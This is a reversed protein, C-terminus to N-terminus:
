NLTNRGVNLRKIVRSVAIIATEKCTTQAVRRARTGGGKKSPCDAKKHGIKGCGYCKAAFAGVEGLATEHGNKDDESKKKSKKEGEAKVKEIRFQKHMETIYEASTPDRQKTLQMVTGLSVMVSSYDSAGARLVFATKRVETM